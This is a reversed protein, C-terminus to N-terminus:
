KNKPMKILWADTRLTIDKFGRAKMINKVQSVYFPIGTGETRIVVTVTYETNDYEMKYKGKELRELVEKCHRKAVVRAAAKLEKIRKRMAMQHHYLMLQATTKKEGKKWMPISVFFVKSIYDCNFGLGQAVEVIESPYLRIIYEEFHYLESNNGTIYEWEELCALRGDMHEQVKGIIVSKANEIDQKHQREAKKRNEEEQRKANRLDEAEQKKANALVTAAISRSM